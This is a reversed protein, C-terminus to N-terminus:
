QFTCWISLATPPTSYNYDEVIKQKKEKKKDNKLLWCASASTKLPPLIFLGTILLLSHCNQISVKPYSCRSSKLNGLNPELVRIQCLDLIWFGHAAGKRGVDLIM